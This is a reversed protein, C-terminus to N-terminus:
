ILNVRYAPNFIMFFIYKISANFSRPIIIWRIIIIISSKKLIISAVLV